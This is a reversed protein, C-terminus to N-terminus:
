PVMFRYLFSEVRSTSTKFSIEDPYLEISNVKRGILAEFKSRYPEYNVGGFIFLNFNKFVDGVKQGKQEILKEFYMQVWSPIGAIISM